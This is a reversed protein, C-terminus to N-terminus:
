KSTETNQRPVNLNAWNLPFGMMWAVFNPQLRFGIKQTMLDPLRDKKPSQDRGGDRANPTPLMKKVWGTGHELHRLSHNKEQVTGVFDSAQPTPLLSNMNTLSGTQLFCNIQEQLNGPPTTKRGTALRKTAKKLLAEPSREISNIATPTALLGFETEETHRMSPALQFLLRNYKTAVIKWTLVCKSSHWDGKLVLSDAFMKQWLSPQNSNKYLELCKQGSIVTMMEVEDSALKALHNAPSVEQLSILEELSTQSQLLKSMQSNQSM